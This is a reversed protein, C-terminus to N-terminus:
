VHVINLVALVQPCLALALSETELGLDLGFCKAKLDLGLGFVLM